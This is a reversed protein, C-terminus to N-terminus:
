PHQATYRGGDGRLVPLSLDVKPSLDEEMPNEASLRAVESYQARRQQSTLRLLLSGETKLSRLIEQLGCDRSNTKSERWNSRVEVSTWQPSTILTM